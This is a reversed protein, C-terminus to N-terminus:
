NYDYINQGMIAVKLARFNGGRNLQNVLAKGNIHTDVLLYQQLM